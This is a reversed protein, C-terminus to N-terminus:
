SELGKLQPFKKLLSKITIAQTLLEISSHKILALWHFHDNSVELIVCDVSWDPKRVGTERFHPTYDFETIQYVGLRKVLRSYRLIRRARREDIEITVKDPRNDCYEDMCSVGRIFKAKLTM